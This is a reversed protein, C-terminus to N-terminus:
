PLAGMTTFKSSPYPQGPVEMRQSALWSVVDSIDQDTMVKGAVNGRWDPAGLEPRGVIVTTRLGQDSVLALFSGDVISSARAAGRGDVGHCASCYVAYAQAGRQPDGPEPDAYPPPHVDRFIGPKAWRARMGSVIADVQENTLMGGSHSAFAPMATGPVGDSIVRRITADDAIALYVPNALGVAAGGRGESGHCGACNSGYLVGFDTVKNPAAVQSGPSPRGPLRGRIDCAATAIALALLVSAEPKM